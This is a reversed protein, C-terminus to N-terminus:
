ARARLCQVATALAIEIPNLIPVQLERRLPEDVDLTGLTMAGLYIARAGDEKVAARAERKTAERARELDDVIVRAPMEISRISVIKPRVTLHEVLEKAVAVAHEDITVISLPLGIVAALFLGAEGPGVIPVPAAARLTGLGPDIAGASILVDYRKPDLSALFSAGAKEVTGFDSKQDVFRPGGEIAVMELSVDSPLWRAIIARRRAKEQETFGTIPICWGITKM